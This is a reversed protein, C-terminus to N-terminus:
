SSDHTHAARRKPRQQRRKESGKSHTVAADNAEDDAPECEQTWVLEQELPPPSESPLSSHHALFFM